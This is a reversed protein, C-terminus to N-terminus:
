LESGSKKLKLRMKASKPSMREPTPPIYDDSDSLTIEVATEEECLIQIVEREEQTSDVYDDPGLILM